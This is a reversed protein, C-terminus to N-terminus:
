SKSGNTSRRALGFFLRGNWHAGTIAKAVASLSRYRKGQYEFGDDLVTVEYREGHWERRLRTGVVPLGNRKQGRKSRAAKAGKVDLADGEVYERLKERTEERLGGFAIEQLRYALRRALQQRSYGPPETGFLERWRDRLAPLPLAQVEKVQRLVGDSM